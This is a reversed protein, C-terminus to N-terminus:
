IKIKQRCTQCFRCKTSFPHQSISTSSEHAESIEHPFSAFERRDVSSDAFHHQSSGNSFVEPKTWTEDIKESSPYIPRLREEASKKDELEIEPHPMSFSHNFEQVRGFIYIERNVPIQEKMWNSYQFWVVDLHEQRGDTFKGSLRKKGKAYTIEQLETIRGKLQIELNDEKIDAIKYVKSKDLYRIPFFHLFDEVTRIDLVNAILKARETGIGKLFEISTDLTM